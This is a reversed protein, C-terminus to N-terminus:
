NQTRFSFFSSVFVMDGKERESQQQKTDGWAIWCLFSIMTGDCVNERKKPILPVVVVVVDVVVHLM